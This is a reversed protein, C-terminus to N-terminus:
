VTQGAQLRESRPLRGRLTFALGCVFCIDCFADDIPGQLGPRKRLEPDIQEVIEWTEKKTFECQVGPEESWDDLHFIQGDIQAKVRQDTEPWASERFDVEFGTIGHTTISLSGDETIQGKIRSPQWHSQLGTVTLWGIKNYRLTYTTFDIKTRPSKAPHRAWKTLTEDIIKASEADIKHGMNKGIIYPIEIGLTNTKAM